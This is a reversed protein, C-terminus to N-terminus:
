RMGAEPVPPRVLVRPVPLKLKVLSKLVLWATKRNVPSKCFGYGLGCKCGYPLPAPTIEAGDLVGDDVAEILEPTGHDLVVRARKISPMARSASVVFPTSAKRPSPDSASRM